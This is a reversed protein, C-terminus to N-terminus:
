YSYILNFYDIISIYILYTLEYIQSWRGEYQPDSARRTFHRGEYQPDSAKRTLHTAEETYINGFTAGIFAAIILVLKMKIIIVLIM